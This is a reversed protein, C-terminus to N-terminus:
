RWREAAWAAHQAADHFTWAVFRSIKKGGAGDRHHASGGRGGVETRLLPEAFFYKQLYALYVVPTM